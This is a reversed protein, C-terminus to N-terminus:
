PTVARGNLSPVGLRDSTIRCEFRYGVPRLGYTERHSGELTPGRQETAPVDGEYELPIDKRSDDIGADKRVQVADRRPESKRGPRTPAPLAPRHRPQKAGPPPTIVGRSFEMALVLM